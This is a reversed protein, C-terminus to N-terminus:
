FPMEWRGGYSFTKQKTRNYDLMHDYDFYSSFGHPFTFSIGIAAQFWCTDLADVNIEFEENNITSVFHGNVTSERDEYERRWEVRSYPIVVAWSTNYVYSLHSGITLM